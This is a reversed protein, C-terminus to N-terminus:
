QQLYEKFRLELKKICRQYFSSLTSVKIGFDVSIDKWSDGLFRRRMLAQFNAQLNNGIYEKKFYNEPDLEIFQRVRESLLPTQEPSALNELDSLTPLEKIQQDTVQAVADRFFRRYLLMNVWAMVSGREPNYKEIKQCFYLLLNQKAENYIDEHFQGRPPCWLRGSHLIAEVLKTLAIRREMSLPPHEQAVKALQKLQEDLEDQLRSDM